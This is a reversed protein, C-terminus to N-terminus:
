NGAAPSEGAPSAAKCAAGCEPCLDPTARLDYGCNPCLRCQARIREIARIMFASLTLMLLPCGVSIAIAVALDGRLYTLGRGQYRKGQVEYSWQAPWPWGTSTEGEFDHLMGVHPETNFPPDGYGLMIFSMEHTTLNTWLLGFSLALCLVIAAFLLCSRYRHALLLPMLVVKNSLHKVLWMVPVIGTVAISSCGFCFMHTDDNFRTVGWFCIVWAISLRICVLLSLGALLNFM